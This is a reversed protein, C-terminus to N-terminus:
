VISYISYLLQNSYQVKFQATCVTYIYTREVGSVGADRKSAVCQEKACEPRIDMKRHLAHGKFEPM